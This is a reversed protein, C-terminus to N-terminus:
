SIAPFVLACTAKFQACNSPFKGLVQNVKDDCKLWCTFYNYSHMTTSHVSSLALYDNTWKIVKPLAIAIAVQLPFVKLSSRNAIHMTNQSCSNIERHIMCNITTNMCVNGEM